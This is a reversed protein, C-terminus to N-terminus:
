QSICIYEPTNSQTADTILLCWSTAARLSPQKWTVYYYFVSDLSSSFLHEGYSCSLRCRIILRSPLLLWFVIELGRLPHIKPQLESSRPSCVLSTHGVRACSMMGRAPLDLSDDM